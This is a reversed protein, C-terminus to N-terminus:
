LTDTYNNNNNNCSGTASLDAQWVDIDGNLCGHPDTPGVKERGHVAAIYPM